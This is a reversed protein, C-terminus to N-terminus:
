AISCPGNSFANAVGKQLGESLSLLRISASEANWVNDITDYANNSIRWRMDPNRILMEVYMALQEWDLSDYLWGNDGDSILYPASGMARCAVIACASNMAENLVAGWGEQEDSTAIFISSNVMNMRVDEPPMSGLFEIEGSLNKKIVSTKLDDEMEGIGIISIKFQYGKAKLREALKICSEPHKWNILRGVWLISVAGNRENNREKLEIIKRVDYHHYDPFYGWKYAKNRFTGTKMYDMRVYAGACLLFLSSYRRYWWWFKVFHSIVRYWPVRTKYIRETYLFTLKGAKLRRKVLSRDADGLLVIDSNLIIDDVYGSKNYEDYEIVYSSTMEKYGLAKRWDSVKTTAVFFYHGATLEYLADSLPKQHHNFYNSLFCIQM